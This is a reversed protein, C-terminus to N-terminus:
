MKSYAYTNRINYNFYAGKSSAGRLENWTQVDVDHYVYITGDTFEIYLEGMDEQDTQTFYGSFTSAEICSSDGIYELDKM